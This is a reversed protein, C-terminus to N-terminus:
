DLARTGHRVEKRDADPHRGVTEISVHEWPFGGGRLRGAFRPRIGTWSLQGDRQSFLDSGTVTDGEIGTVEYINTVVRRAHGPDLRLFIVVDVAEAIMETIAEAPLAEEAMMAYMRLKSLAQRPGNAHITCMSGDHGSNMAALMDLAEGGRVEGVIIRTPRMRLSNKVLTRIPFAGVGEVNPLRAQLAVCDPLMGELHLEGTEEITVVREDTGAISAGLANLCTTKGSGTGGAILMNLGARVGAELFAAADPTLTDLAVLDDLTRARLLFKRVTIHTYRTTLPPIIANLRSGDPLRADVLPSTEDLRRGLRGIARRIIRLLEADDDIFVDTLRKAGREIVFVRHPGNVIIEEIAPDDLLPQLPGLGLIEDVLRSAFGNPDPLPEEGGTVARHNEADVLQRVVRRVEDRDEALTDLEIVRRLEDRVEQRLLEERTSRLPGTM